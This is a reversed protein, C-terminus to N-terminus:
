IATSYYNNFKTGGRIIHWRIGREMEFKLCLFPLPTAIVEALPIGYLGCPWGRMGFWGMAPWNVLKM